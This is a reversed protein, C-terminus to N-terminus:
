KCISSEDRVMHLLSAVSGRRVCLHMFLSFGSRSSKFCTPKSRQSAIIFVVTHTRVMNITSALDLTSLGHQKKKKNKELEIRTVTRPFKSQITIPLVFNIKCMQQRLHAVSSGLKVSVFKGHVQLSYKFTELLKVTM